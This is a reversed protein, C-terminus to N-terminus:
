EGPRYMLLNAAWRTGTDAPARHAIPLIVRQRGGVHGVEAVKISSLNWRQVEERLARVVADCM